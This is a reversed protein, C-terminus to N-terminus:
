GCLSHLELISEGILKPKSEELEQSLIDPEKAALHEAEKVLYNVPLKRPGKTSHHSRVTHKDSSTESSSSFPKWAGCLSHAMLRVSHFLRSKFARHLLPTSSLEKM